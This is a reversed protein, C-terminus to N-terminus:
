NGKQILLWLLTITTVEFGVKVPGFLRGAGIYFGLPSFNKIKPFSKRKSIRLDSSYIVADALPQSIVIPCSTSKTAQYH